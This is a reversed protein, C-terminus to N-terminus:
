APALRATLRAFLKGFGQTMFAPPEIVAGRAIALAGLVLALAISGYLVFIAAVSQAALVNCAFGILRLAGGAVIAM